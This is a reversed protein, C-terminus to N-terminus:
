FVSFSMLSSVIEKIDALQTITYDVDNKPGLSNCGRGARMHVTKFGLAKAPSLDPGIRDGCVIVDSASFKLEEAIAKYFPGKSTGECVSIKSFITSDIGANKMKDMQQSVQGITVLALEHHHSLDRLVEEAGNRQEVPIHSCGTEYVEKLGIELFQSPAQIIELFEALAKKGSEATRDIRMLQELALSFDPLALGEEMM